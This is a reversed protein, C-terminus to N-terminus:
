AALAAFRSALDPLQDSLICSPLVGKAHVAQWADEVMDPHGSLYVRWSSNLPTDRMAITLARGSLCGDPAHGGSVCPIYRFHPYLNGLARLQDVLYLDQHHRVGHYLHIPARHGQRLAERVIGYYPALGSGTSVMLMPTDIHRRYINAGRPKGIVIADGTKLEEHFWLSSSGAPGRRIHMNLTNDISPASALSYYRVTKGGINVPLYQGAEYHAIDPCHLRVALTAHNLMDMQAIVADVFEPHSPTTDM